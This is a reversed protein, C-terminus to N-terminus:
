RSEGGDREGQARSQFHMRDDAKFFRRALAVLQADTPHDSAEIASIRSALNPHREKIHAALEDKASAPGTILIAGSDSLTRSVRELFAHEVTAHGSGSSNAKHHIHEHPHSSRLTAHDAESAGVHFIKAQQHDIWVITHDHDPM